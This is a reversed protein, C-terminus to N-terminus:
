APKIDLRRGLFLLFSLFVKVDIAGTQDSGKIALVLHTTKLTDQELQVNPMTLNTKLSFGTKSKVAILDEDM